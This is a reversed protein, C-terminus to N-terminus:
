RRKRRVIVVVGAGIVLLPVVAAFVITIGRTQAATIEMGTTTLSQPTVDVEVKDKGAAKTFLNVIIDSNNAYQSQLFVANILLDSGAAYVRSYTGDAGEFVVKNSEVIVDYSGSQGATSPDFNQLGDFPAIVAGDYTSVISTTKYAGSEEFLRNIAKLGDGYTAKTQVDIGDNYESNKIELEQYTPSMQHGYNENTQYIYGSQVEIGWEKLYSNLNPLVDASASAFYLFNKGLKGGNDLWKDIKNLDDNTLDYLPGNLILFDYDASISEITSLKIEECTFTNAKILEVLAEPVTAGYDESIVAAKVPNQDSVNMIASLLCKEAAGFYEMRFYNGYGGYYM